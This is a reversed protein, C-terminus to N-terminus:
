KGNGEGSIDSTPPTLAECIEGCMDDGVVKECANIWNKTTEKKGALHGYFYGDNYEESLGDKKGLEYAREAAEDREARERKILEALQKHAQKVDKLEDKLQRVAEDRDAELKGVEVFTLEKKCVACHWFAVDYLEPVHEYKECDEIRESM